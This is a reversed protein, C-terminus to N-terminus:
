AAGAASRALPSGPRAASDVTEPRGMRHLWRWHGLIAARATPHAAYPVGYERATAEVIRSLAPYHIHSVRPFLHHEIQFNLGGTYWCCLRSTRGFDVATRVQHEAFDHALRASADPAPFDADPVVHALQFVVSMTVGMVFSAIAYCGLVAGFPHFLAPLVFAWGYFLLKGGVFVALDWGRPRPFSHGTIRGAAVQRFDDVFHWKVPLLGYLVWLYIHQGRHLSHHRQHPSLRALPQIEIDDDAGAINPYSHHIVNHKWRWVYSSGGLLDITMAMLRNIFRRESYAEHGGDHQVNFGIGAGVLGLSIALPIAQWATHAALLGLYSAGLLVALIATKIYMRPQDRRALRQEEFYADVRGSVAEAFGGSPAFKVKLGKM